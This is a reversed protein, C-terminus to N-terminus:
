GLGNGHVYIGRGGTKDMLPCGPFGSRSWRPLDPKLASSSGTSWCGSTTVSLYVDLERWEWLESLRGWKGWCPPGLLSPGLHGQFHCVWGWAQGSEWREERMDKSSQAGEWVWVVVSLNKRLVQVPFCLYCSIFNWFTLLCIIQSSWIVSDYLDHLM